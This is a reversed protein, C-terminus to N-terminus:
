RVEILDETLFALDTATTYIDSEEANFERCNRWINRLTDLAQDVSEFENVKKKLTTFDM